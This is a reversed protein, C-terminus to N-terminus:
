PMFLAMMLSTLHAFYRVIIYKSFEEIVAVVLFAKSFQHFISFENDLTIFVDTGYYLITAVLVSVIAGLLFNYLLLKKPEKEYKDKLYIYFIIVVVPALSAFLLNM